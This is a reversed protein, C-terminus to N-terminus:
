YRMMSGRRPPRSPRPPTPKEAEQPQLTSPITLSLSVKEPAESQPIILGQGFISGPSVVSVIDKGPETRLVRGDALVFELAMNKVRFAGPPSGVPIEVKLPQELPLRSAIPPPIRLRVPRERDQEQRSVTPLRGVAQGELTIVRDGRGIDGLMDFILFAQKLAGYVEGVTKGAAPTPAAEPVGPPTGLRRLAEQARQAIPTAPFREALQQYLAKAEGGQGAKEAAEAQALLPAAQRALWRGQEEPSTGVVLLRTLPRRLTLLLTYKGEADAQITRKEQDVFVWYEGQPQLSLTLSVRGEGELRVELPTSGGVVKWAVEQGELPRIRFATPFFATEFPNAPEDLRLSGDSLARARLGSLGMRGVGPLTGMDETPWGFREKVLVGREYAAPYLQLNSPAEFPPSIGAAELMARYIAELAKEPKGVQELGWTPHDALGLNFGCIFVPNGNLRHELIVPRQSEAEKWLPRVGEPLRNPFLVLRGYHSHLNLSWQGPGQVEQLLAPGRTPRMQPEEAFGLLRVFDAPLEERRLPVFYADQWAFRGLCLGRQGHYRPDELWRALLRWTETPLLQQLTPIFIFRYRNVDVKYPAPGLAIDEDTLIHFPIHLQALVSALGRVGGIDEGPSLSFATHKNRLILVPAERGFLFPVREVSGLFEELGELLREDYATPQAATRGSLREWDYSLMLAAGTGVLDALWARYYQRIGRRSRGGGGEGCAWGKAEVAPALLYPGYSAANQIVERVSAWAPLDEPEVGVDHQGVGILDFPLEARRFLHYFHWPPTFDHPSSYQLLHHPAAQRMTGVWERLRRLLVEERFYMFDIWMPDQPINEQFTGWGQRIPEHPPELSRYYEWRPLPLEDFDRYRDFAGPVWPYFPLLVERGEVVRRQWLSRDPSDYAYGWRWTAKLTEIRGYKQRLFEQFQRRVGEEELGLAFELDEEGLLWAAIVTRQSFYRLIRAYAENARKWDQDSYLILGWRERPIVEPHLGWFYPLQVVAYLGHAQIRDLLHDYLEIVYRMPPLHSGKPPKELRKWSGDPNLVENWAFFRLYPNVRARRMRALDQELLDFDFSPVHYLPQEPRPGPQSYVTFFLRLPGEEDRLLGTTPDVQLFSRYKPEDEPHLYVGEFRSFEPLPSPPIPQQRLAEWDFTPLDPPPAALREGMQAAPWPGLDFPGRRGDPPPPSQCRWDNDSYVELRTGDAFELRARLLLRAPEGQARVQVLIQRQGAELHPLLPIPEIAERLRREGVEQGDLFVKVEGNAAVLLWAAVPKSPVQWNQAWLAEEHAAVLWASGTFDLTEGEVRGTLMMGIGLAWWGWPM